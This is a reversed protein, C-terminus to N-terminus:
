CAFSGEFRSLVLSREVGCLRQLCILSPENETIRRRGFKNRSGRCTLNLSVGAVLLVSVLGTDGPGCAIFLPTAGHIRVNVGVRPHQLIRVIVKAMSKTTWTLAGYVMDIAHVVLLCWSHRLQRQPLRVLIAKSSYDM